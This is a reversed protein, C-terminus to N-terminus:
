VHYFFEFIILHKIDLKQTHFFGILLSSSVKHTDSNWTPREKMQNPKQTNPDESIFSVFSEKGVSPERTQKPISQHIKNKRTTSNESSKIYSQKTEKHVGQALSRFKKNIYRM